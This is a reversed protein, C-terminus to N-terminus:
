GVPMNEEITQLLTAREVAPLRRREGHHHDIQVLELLDVVLKAMGDTVSQEDLRCAPELADHPLGVGDGAQAAVFKRHDQGVDIRRIRCLRSM